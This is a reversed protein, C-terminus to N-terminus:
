IVSKCHNLYNPTLRPETVFPASMERATVFYGRGSFPSAERGRPDRYRLPDKLVWTATRVESGATVAFRYSWSVRQNPLWETAVQDFHIGKGMTIHRLHEGDRFEGAGAEPVPVGIRYMWASDVEDRAIHRTDVLERWVKEPPAAIYVERDQARIRQEPPLRHEFSGAVLPLLAVCSVMAGRPWNTARCIAGMVLGALGALIAFMPVIIIACILGEIMIALTALVYASSAVVPALFYYKWTRRETREAVYVTVLGVLLPSGIIFSELMASYANGPDGSFVLRMVLGAIAGAGIPWWYSFPIMRPSDFLPGSFPDPHNM